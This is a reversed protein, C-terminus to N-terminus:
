TTRDCLEAVIRALDDLDMPKKVLRYGLPAAIDAASVIVVPLTVFRDDDRLASILTMGDMLPMMLDALILTPQPMRPLLELAERGNEAQAVVFGEARLFEAIAERIDPEDEVVLVAACKSVTM